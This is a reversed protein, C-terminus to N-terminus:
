VVSLPIVKEGQFKKAEWRRFMVSVDEPSNEVGVAQCRLPPFFVWACYLSLITKAEGM